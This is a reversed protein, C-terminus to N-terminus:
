NSSLFLANSQASTITPDGIGIPPCPTRVLQARKRPQRYTSHDGLDAQARSEMSIPAITEIRVLRDISLFRKEGSRDIHLYGGMRILRLIRSREVALNRHEVSAKAEEEALSSGNILDILARTLSM